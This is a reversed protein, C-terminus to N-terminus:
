QPARAVLRDVEHQEQRRYERISEARDGKLEERLELKTRRLEEVVVLRAEKGAGDIAEKATHSQQDFLWVFAGIAMVIATGMLGILLNLKWDVTESKSVAKRSDEKTVAAITEMEERFKRRYDQEKRILERVNDSPPTEEAESHSRQRTRMPPLDVGGFGKPSM